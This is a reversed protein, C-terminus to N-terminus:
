ARFREGVRLIGQLFIQIWGAVRLLDFTSLLYLTLFWVAATVLVAGTLNMAGLLYAALVAGILGGAPIADAIPKWDPILGLATATAAILTAGCILKFGAARIRSGLAFRWGILLILVPIAYAALGLGQLFLDSISAGLRGTLNVAKAGGSATSSATNWSPDMPYYSALSLFIFLGVALCVIALAGKLKPHRTKDSLKM